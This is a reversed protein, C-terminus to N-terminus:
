LSMSHIPFHLNIPVGAPVSYVSILLCTQIKLVQMCHKCDVWQYVLWHGTNASGKAIRYNKEVVPMVAEKLENEFLQLSREGFGAIGGGSMNGDMMVVLMPKAKKEAILNDLILDTKGQTAWGREDEGGGHLIYLVPYKENVHLIMARLRISTFSGGHIPSEQFINKSGSIAMRFMECPMIVVVLLLFKLEVQWEAWAM